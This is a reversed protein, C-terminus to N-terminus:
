HPDGAENWLQEMPIKARGTLEDYMNHLQFEIEMKDAKGIDMVFFGEKRYIRNILEKSSQGVLNAAQLRAKDIVITDTKEEGTREDRIRVPFARVQLSYVTKM